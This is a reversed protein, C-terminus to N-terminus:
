SDRPTRIGQAKGASDIERVLHGLAAKNGPKSGIQSREVVLELRNCLSVCRVAPPRNAPRRRM